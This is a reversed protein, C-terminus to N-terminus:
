AARAGTTAAATMRLAPAWLSGATPIGALSVKLDLFSPAVITPIPVGFNSYPTFHFPPVM